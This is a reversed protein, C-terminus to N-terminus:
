SLTKITKNNVYTAQFPCFYNLFIGFAVFWIAFQNPVTSNHIEIRSPFFVYRQDFGFKPIKEFHTLFLKKLFFEEKDFAQWAMKTEFSKVKLPKVQTGRRRARGLFGGERDGGGCGDKKKMHLM